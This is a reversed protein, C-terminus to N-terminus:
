DNGSVKLFTNMVVTFDQLTDNLKKSLTCDKWMFYIAVIGLAGYSTLMPVANMMMDEM